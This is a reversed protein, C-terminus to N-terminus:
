LNVLGRGFVEGVEKFSSLVVLLTVGNEEQDVTSVGGQIQCQFDVLSYQFNTGRYCRLLYRHPKQIGANAPIWFRPRLFCNGREGGLGGQPM